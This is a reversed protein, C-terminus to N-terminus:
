GCQASWKKSFMASAGSSGGNEEQIFSSLGYRGFTPMFRKEHSRNSVACQALAREIRFGLSSPQTWDDWACQTVWYVLPLPLSFLLSDDFFVEDFDRPKPTPLKKAPIKTPAPNSNTTAKYPILFPAMPDISRGGTVLSSHIPPSSTRASAILASTTTRQHTASQSM